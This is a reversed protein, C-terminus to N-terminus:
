QLAFLILFCKLLVKQLPFKLKQCLNIQISTFYAVLFVCKCHSRHFQDNLRSESHHAHLIYYHIECPLTYYRDCYHVQYCFLISSKCKTRHAGFELKRDTDHFPNHQIKHTFFLKKILGSGEFQKYISLM